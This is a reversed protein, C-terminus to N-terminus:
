FTILHSFIYFGFNQGFKKGWKKCVSNWVDNRGFWRFWRFRRTKLSLLFFNVCFLYLKALEVDFTRAVTSNTRYWCLSTSLSFFLLLFSACLHPFSTACHSRRLLFDDQAVLFVIMSQSQKMAKLSNKSHTHRRKKECNKKKEKRRIPFRQTWKLIGIKSKFLYCFSSIKQTNKKWWMIEKHRKQKPVSLIWILHM